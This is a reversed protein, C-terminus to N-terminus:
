FRFHLFAFLLTNIYRWKSRTSLRLASLCPDCLKVQLYAMGAKGKYAHAM